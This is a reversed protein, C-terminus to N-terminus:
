GIRSAKLLKKLDNKMGNADPNDPFRMMLSGLPDVIWINSAGQNRAVSQQAVSLWNAVLPAKGNLDGLRVVWIGEHEALLAPDPSGKADTLIWLREVRDRERGTTLRLQRMLWLEHKCAESCEAPGMRVMLWRGGWDGLSTLPRRTRADAQLAIFASEAKPEVVSSVPVATVTVQPEVFDGYNTRGEPKVGYYMVYSAIVPAITVALVAWLPWLNRKKENM